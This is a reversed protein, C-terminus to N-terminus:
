GAAEGPVAELEDRHDALDEGVEGDLPRRRVRDVQEVRSPGGQGSRPGAAPRSRIRLSTVAGATTGKVGRPLSLSASSPAAVENVDDGGVAGPTRAVANKRASGTRNGRPHRASRPDSNKKRTPPDRAGPPLAPGREDVVPSSSRPGDRM